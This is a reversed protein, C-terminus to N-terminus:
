GHIKLTSTINNNQSSRSYLVIRVYQNVGGINVVQLCFDLLGHILVIKFAYSSSAWVITVM